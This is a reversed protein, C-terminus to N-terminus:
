DSLISIDNQVREVWPKEAFEREARARDGHHAVVGYLRVDGGSITADVHAGRQEVLGSSRLTEQVRERALMQRLASNREEADAFIRSRAMQALMEGCSEPGTQATSFVLDYNAPDRWDGRFFRLFTQGHAADSRDIERRATREDVGLREAVTAVRLDMPACVRVHLIGPVDRFLRTAGWGRIIADGELAIEILEVPTLRGSGAGRTRWRDIEDPTSELHRWVESEGDDFVDDEAVLEHHIVNFGLRDSLDRAVDKGRSGMERTMTIITM